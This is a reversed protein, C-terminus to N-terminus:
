AAGARRSTMRAEIASGWAAEAEAVTLALADRGDITLTLMESM